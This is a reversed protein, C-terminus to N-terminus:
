FKFGLLNWHNLFWLFVLFAILVFLYYVRGCRNWYKKIWAIASFFFVGAALLIAVFPFALLIKLIFPVGYILQEPNGLISLLLISFVICLGSM